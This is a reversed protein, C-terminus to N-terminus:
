CKRLPTLACLHTKIQTETIVGFAFWPYVFVEFLETQHVRDLTFGHSIFM